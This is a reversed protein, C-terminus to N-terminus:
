DLCKQKQIGTRNPTNTRLKQDSIAEPRVALMKQSTRALPVRREHEGTVVPALEQAPDCFPTLSADLRLAPMTTAPTSYMIKVRMENAPYTQGMRRKPHSSVHFFPRTTKDARQNTRSCQNSSKGHKEPELQKGRQSIRDGDSDGHEVLRQLVM